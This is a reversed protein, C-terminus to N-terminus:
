LGAKSMVGAERIAPMTVSFPIMLGRSILFMLFFLYRKRHYPEEAQRASAIAVAIIESVILCGEEDVDADPCPGDLLPERLVVDGDIRDIGDEHRVVMEVMDLAQSGKGFAVLLRDIQGPRQIAREAVIETRGAPQFATDAVQGFPFRVFHPLIEGDRGEDDRVIGGLRHAIMEDQVALAEGHHGIQTFHGVIGHMVGRQGVM